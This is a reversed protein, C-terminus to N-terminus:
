EIPITRGGAAEKPIRLELVGRDISASADEGSADPPLPFTVDVFVPREEREYAFGEPVDKARQAEVSVRGDHVRLDVTDSDAGPLDLVVLYTDDSEHLDAFVGAPLQALASRLTSM